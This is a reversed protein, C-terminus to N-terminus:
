AWRHSVSANRLREVFVYIVLMRVQCLKGGAKWRQLGLGVGCEGAIMDDLGRLVGTVRESDLVRVRLVLM